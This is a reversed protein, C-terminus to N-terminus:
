RIARAAVNTPISVILCTLDGLDILSRHVMASLAAFFHPRALGFPEGRRAHHCAM